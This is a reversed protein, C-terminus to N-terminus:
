IPRPEYRKEDFDISKKRRKNSPEEEGVSGAKPEPMKYDKYKTVDFEVLSPFALAFEYIRTADIEAPWGDEAAKHLVELKEKPTKEARMKFHTIMAERFKIGNQERWNLEEKAKLAQLEQETEKMCVVFNYFLAPLKRPPSAGSLSRKTRAM